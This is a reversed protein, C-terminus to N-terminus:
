RVMDDQKVKTGTIHGGELDDVVKVLVDLIDEQDERLKTETISEDLEWFVLEVGVDVGAEVDVFVDVRERKLHEAPVKDGHANQTEEEEQEIENDLGATVATSLLHNKFLYTLWNQTQWYVYIPINRITTHHHM